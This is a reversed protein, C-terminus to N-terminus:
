ENQRQILLLIDHCRLPGTGARSLAARRGAPPAATGTEPVSGPSEPPTPESALM